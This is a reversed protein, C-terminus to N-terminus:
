KLVKFPLKDILKLLFRAYDMNIMVKEKETVQREPEKRLLKEAQEKIEEPMTKQARPEQSMVAKFKNYFLTCIDFENNNFM